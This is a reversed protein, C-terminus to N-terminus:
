GKGSKHGELLRKLRKSEGSTKNEGGNIKIGINGGKIGRRKVRKGEGGEVRKEM